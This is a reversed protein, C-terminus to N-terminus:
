EVISRDLEVIWVDCALWPESYFYLGAYVISDAHSMHSTMCSMGNFFFHHVFCFSIHWQLMKFCLFVFIFNINIDFSTTGFGFAFISHLYSVYFQDNIITIVCCGVTFVVFINLPMTALAVQKKEETIKKAKKQTYLYM